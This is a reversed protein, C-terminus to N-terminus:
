GLTAVSVRTADVRTPATAAREPPRIWRVKSGGMLKSHQQPAIHSIMQVAERHGPHGPDALAQTNVTTASGDEDKKRHSGFWPHFQLYGYNGYGVGSASLGGADNLGTFAGGFAGCSAGCPACRASCHAGGAM